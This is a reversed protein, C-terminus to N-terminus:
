SWSTQNKCFLFINFYEKLITSVQMIVKALDQDWNKTTIYIRSKYGALATM